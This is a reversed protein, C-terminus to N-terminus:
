SLYALIRPTVVLGEVSFTRTITDQNRLCSKYLQVKNFEGLDTTNGRDVIVGDNRLGAVALWVEDNIAMDVEKVQSYITDDDYWMNTLFVKM